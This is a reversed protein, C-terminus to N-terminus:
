SPAAAFAANAAASSRTAKSSAAEWLVSLKKQLQSLFM